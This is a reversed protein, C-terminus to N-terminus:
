VALKINALYFSQMKGSFCGVDSFYIIKVVFLTQHSARRHSRKQPTADRRTLVDEPHQRSLGLVGVPQRGVPCSNFSGRPSGSTLYFM